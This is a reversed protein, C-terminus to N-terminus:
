RTGLGGTFGKESPMGFEGVGGLIGLHLDLREVIELGDVDALFLPGPSAV